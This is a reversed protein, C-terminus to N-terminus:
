RLTKLNDKAWEVMRQTPKKLALSGGGTRQNRGKLRVSFRGILGVFLHDQATLVLM